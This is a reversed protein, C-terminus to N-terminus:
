QKAGVLGKPAGISGAGLDQDDPGGAEGPAAGAEGAREVARGAVVYEDRVQAQGGARHDAGAARDIRANGEARCRYLDRASQSGVGASDLDPLQEEEAASQGVLRELGRPDALAQEVRERNSSHLETLLPSVASVSVHSHAWEKFQRFRAMANMSATM